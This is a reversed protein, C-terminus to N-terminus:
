EKIMENMKKIIKVRVWMKKGLGCDMCHLFISGRKAKLFFFISNPYQIIQDGERKKPKLPIFPYSIQHSKTTRKQKTVPVVEYKHWWRKGMQGKHDM